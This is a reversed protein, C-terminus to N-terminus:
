WPTLTSLSSSHKPPVVTSKQFTNSLPGINCKTHYTTDVIRITMSLFLQLGCHLTVLVLHYVLMIHQDKYFMQPNTSATDCNYDSLFYIKMWIEIMWSLLEDCTESLLLYPKSWHIFEIMM